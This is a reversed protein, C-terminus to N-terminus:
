PLNDQCAQACLSRSFSTVKIAHELFTFYYTDVPCLLVFYDSHLTCHVYAEANTHQPCNESTLLLAISWLLMKILLVVVQVLIPYLLHIPM